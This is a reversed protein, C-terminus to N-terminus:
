RRCVWSVGIKQCTTGACCKAQACDQNEDVCCDPHLCCHGSAWGLRADVDICPRAGVCIPKQANCDFDFRCEPFKLPPACSKPDYLDPPASLDEPLSLDEQTVLDPLPRAADMELAVDRSQSADVPASIATGSDFDFAARQAAPIFDPNPATCASVGAALLVVLRM